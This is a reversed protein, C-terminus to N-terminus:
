GVLVFVIVIADLCVYLAPLCYIGADMKVHKFGCVSVCMTVCPMNRRLSVQPPHHSHRREGERRRWSRASQMVM